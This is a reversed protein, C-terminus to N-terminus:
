NVRSLGLIGDIPERMGEQEYVAFYEFQSVCQSLLLCVTDHHEYGTLIMSGYFRQSERTTLKVSKDTDYKDGECTDFNEYQIVLWDSGTDFVVDMPSFRGMYITGFWTAGDITDLSVGVSSQGLKKHGYKRQNKALYNEVGIDLAIKDESKGYIQETIM